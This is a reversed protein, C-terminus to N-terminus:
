HGVPTPPRGDDHGGAVSADIVDFAPGFHQDRRGRLRARLDDLSTVSRRERSRMTLAAATAYAAVPNVDELREGSSTGSLPAVLEEATPLSVVRQHLLIRMYAPLGQRCIQDQLRPPFWRLPPPADRQPDIADIGHSMVARRHWLSNTVGRADVGDLPHRDSFQDGVGRTWITSPIASWGCARTIRELTRAPAMKLGLGNLVVLTKTPSTRVHEEVADLASLLLRYSVDNFIFASQQAAPLVRRMREADPRTRCGLLPHLLDHAQQEALRFLSPSCGARFARWVTRAIQRPRRRSLAQRASVQVLSHTQLLPERVIFIFHQVLPMWAQWEPPTSEAIDKVVIRLPGTHTQQLERVKALITDYGLAIDKKRAILRFPEHVQADASQALAIELITSLTRPPSLIQTIELNGARVLERLCPLPECEM